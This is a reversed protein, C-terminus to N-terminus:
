TMKTAGTMLAILREPKRPSRLFIHLKIVQIFRMLTTTLLLSSLKAQWGKFIQEMIQDDTLDSLVRAQFPSHTAMLTLYM